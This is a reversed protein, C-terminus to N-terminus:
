VNQPNQDTHLSLYGGYLMVCLLNVPRFDEISYKSMEGEGKVVMSRKVTNM